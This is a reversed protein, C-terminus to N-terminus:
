GNNKDDGIMDDKIKCMHLPQCFQMSYFQCNSPSLIGLPYELFAPNPYMSGKGLSKEWKHGFDAIKAM